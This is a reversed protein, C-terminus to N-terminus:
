SVHADARRARRRANVARRHLRTSRAIRDARRARTAEALLTDQHEHILETTLAYM